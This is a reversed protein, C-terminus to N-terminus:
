TGAVAVGGIEDDNVVRPTLGAATMLAATTAAQSRGTEIVLTGAEALWDRVGVCM